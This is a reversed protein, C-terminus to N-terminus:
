VSFDTFVVNINPNLMFCDFRPGHYTYRKVKRNITTASINIMASLDRIALLMQAQAIWLKVPIDSLCIIALRSPFLCVGTHFMDPPAGTREGVHVQSGEILRLM